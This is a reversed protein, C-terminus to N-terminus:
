PVSSPGSSPAFVRPKEHMTLEVELAENGHDRSGWASADRALPGPDRGEALLTIGSPRASSTSPSSVVVVGGLAIPIHLMGPASALEQDSLADDTAGFDVSHALADQVGRGSGLSQYMVEVNPNRRAFTAIWRSMIPHVFTSGSGNLVLTDVDRTDREATSICITVSECKKLRVESASFAFRKAAITVVRPPDM